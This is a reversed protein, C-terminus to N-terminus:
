QYNCRLDIDFNNQAVSTCYGAIGMAMQQRISIEM